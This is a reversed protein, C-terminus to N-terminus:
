PSFSSFPTKWLVDLLNAMRCFEGYPRYRSKWSPFLEHVTCNRGNFSSITKWVRDYARLNQIVQMNKQESSYKCVLLALYFRRLSVKLSDRGAGLPQRHVPSLRRAM